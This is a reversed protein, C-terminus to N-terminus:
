KKLLAHLRPLRFFQTTFLVALAALIISGAIDLPHHVYALVRSIGLALALAFLVLGTIRDFYLVVFAVVMALITHDSPFGNDASHPFLPTLNQVVFPRPDYYLKGAFLLLVFGFILAVVGFLAIGLKKANPQLLWWVFSILVIIYLLYEGCFRIITQYM